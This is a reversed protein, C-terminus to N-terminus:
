IFSRCEKWIEGLPRRPSRCIWVPIRSEQAYQSEAFGALTVEGFLQDLSDTGSGTVILVATETSPPGWFWYNNHTSYIPPLDYRRSWYELSAAHGYNNGLVACRGRDDPPLSRYADSVVRALNEWGLRDSLHQPLVSTHGIEQKAPAIGLRRAYAVTGEPSLVPVAIPSLAAGGAALVFIFAWRLWRLRRGNTWREWAAGGAAMMAPMSSAFYYPKGNQLFVIAFTVVFIIGILLFPRAERSLFIWGLGGLWLPLTFPNAELICESVFAQLTLDANKNAAANRVFELTPWGNGANWLLYPLVFAAAIGGAIYLRPDALHRRHRTALLGALLAPGFVFLGIKNLLGIGIVLGAAIWLKGDGTRAIRIVIYYSALWFLLDLSNMSYFGCVALGAMGVAAATGSLVQAWRGGGMGAAAAGTLFVVGSGCLAPIVRLSHISDGFVSKWLSLIWISLSPHDVYGWAPRAACALYYYEDRFIEYRGSAAILLLFQALAPILLLGWAVPRSGRSEIGTDNIRTSAEVNM